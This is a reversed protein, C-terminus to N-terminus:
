IVLFDEIRKVRAELSTRAHSHGPCPCGAAEAETAYVKKCANCQWKGAITSNYCSDCLPQEEDYVGCAKWNVNTLPLGCHHCHQFAIRRYWLEIEGDERVFLLQKPPISSKFCALARAIAIDRHVHRETVFQISPYALPTNPMELQLLVGLESRNSQVKPEIKVGPAMAQLAQTVLPLDSM